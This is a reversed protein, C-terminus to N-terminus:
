VDVYGTQLGIEGYQIPGEGITEEDSSTTTTAEAEAAEMPRGVCWTIVGCLIAFLCAAVFVAIFPIPSHGTSAGDSM